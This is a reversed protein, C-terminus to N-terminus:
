RAIFARRRNLHLAAGLAMLGGMLMMTWESLTPVAAPAPPTLSITVASAFAQSAGLSPNTTQTMCGLGYTRGGVNDGRGTCLSNTEVAAYVGGPTNSIRISTVYSRPHNSDNTAAPLGHMKDFKFEFYTLNGAGDTSVQATQSVISWDLFDTQFTNQGDNLDLDGVRVDIVEDILNPALAGFITFSGSLRQSTTYITSCGGQPCATFNSVTDYPASQM